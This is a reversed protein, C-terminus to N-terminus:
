ELDPFIQFKKRREERDAEIKAEEEVVQNQMDRAKFFCAEGQQRLNQIEEKMNQIKKAEKERMQLEKQKLDRLFKEQERARDKERAKREGEWQRKEAERYEPSGVPHKHGDCLEEYERISSGCPGMGHDIEVEETITRCGCYKWPM